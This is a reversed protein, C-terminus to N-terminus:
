TYAVAPSGRQHLVELSGKGASPIRLLNAGGSNAITTTFGSADGMLGKSVEALEDDEYAFINQIAGGDSRNARYYADWTTPNTKNAAM